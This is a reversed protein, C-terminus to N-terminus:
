CITDRRIGLRFCACFGPASKGFLRLLHECGYVKSPEMEVGENAKDNAWDKRAQVYQAREFRYLLNNGLAKNFYLKLGQLVEDLVAPPRSTAKPERKLGIYHKQYSALIEEVNPKRPLPVLQSKKTVNEWDDVLKVKLTDNIVIKIEPRKIYEDEQALL